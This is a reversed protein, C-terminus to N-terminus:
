SIKERLANTQVSALKNILKLIFLINMSSLTSESNHHFNMLWAHTQFLKGVNRFYQERKRKTSHYPIQLCALEKM